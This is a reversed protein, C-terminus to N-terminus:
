LQLVEAVEDNTVHAVSKHKWDVFDEKPKEDNRTQHRAWKEFDSMSLLKTQAKRERAMCSEMTEEKGSGMWLLRYTCALALPSQKELHRVFEKAVAIGEEQEPHEVERASIERFRELIGAVSSERNFVGHFTAAYNVLDSERYDFDPVAEIFDRSPDVLTHDDPGHSWIDTGDARYASVSHVLDAVAMNRFEANHDRVPEMDNYYRVPKKTLAQQNWPPLETLAAELIPMAAYSEMYNTALGTEMMDSADAEYGMLALLLSCGPFRAAPQNFERGLRPLLYSLGIPDFTLGRTPNLLRVSSAETALVYSSYLWLAGSDTIQGHPVLLTPIKSEKGRLARALDQLGDFLANVAAESTHEGRRYLELPDYGGAVWRAQGPQPPLASAWEPEFEWASYRERDERDMIVDPIPLGAFGEEFRDDSRPSESGILIANLGENRTLARLRYALGELQTTTLHPELLFLRRACGLGRIMAAHPEKTASSKKSSLNELMISDDPIAHISAPAGFKKMAKRRTAGAETSLQRCRLASFSSATRRGLSRPFSM